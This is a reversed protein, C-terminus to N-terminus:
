QCKIISYSLLFILGFGSEDRRTLRLKVGSWKLEEEHLAPSYRNCNPWWIEDRDSSRGWATTGWSWQPTGGRCHTRILSRPVHAREMPTLEELVAGAQTREMCKLCPWLEQWFVQELTAEEGKALAGALLRSWCCSEMLELRRMGESGARGHSRWLSCHSHTVGHDKMPQLPVAERVMSGEMPRSCARGRLQGQHRCHKRTCKGKEERGCSSSM